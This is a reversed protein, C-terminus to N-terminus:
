VGSSYALGVSDPGVHIGLVPTLESTLIEDPQFRESAEKALEWAWAEADAHVVALRWPREALREEVLDLLSPIVKQKTRVRMVPQIPSAHIEMIPFLDLTSAFFHAIHSIRGGNRLYRTNTIAFVVGSAGRVKELLQVVQELSAGSRAARAAALVQFGFGMSNSDSSIVHVDINEALESGLKAASFTSSFVKGVTITLIPKGDAGLQEYVEKFSGPTPGSTKPITRSSRLRTFFERPSIDHDLFSEGDWEYPLPVVNIDLENRLAEPIHCVSDTVIHFSAM